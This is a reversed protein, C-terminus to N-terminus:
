TNKIINILKEECVERSLKELVYERPKYEELKSTFLDFKSELENIDYFYESCREDCYPIVTAPIDDYNYGYEENMSKVNWVFLPVNMSLCEELAFGQSEHRGIWIGYKSNKLYEIYTNEEYKTNYNFIVFNINKSNLFSNMINLLNPDRGKFYIFINNRSIFSKTDKFKETDVCFPLPEVKINKCLENDRWIKAAWESPQVYTVNTRSIVEM